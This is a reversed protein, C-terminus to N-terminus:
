GRAASARAATPPHSLFLRLLNRTTSFFFHLALHPSLRSQGAKRSLVALFWYTVEDMKAGTVLQHCGELKIYYAPEDNSERMSPPLTKPLPKSRISRRTRKM